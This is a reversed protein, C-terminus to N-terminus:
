HSLGATSPPTKLSSLLYLVRNVPSRPSDATPAHLAPCSDTARVFVPLSLQAARCFINGFVIIKSSTTEPDASLSPSAGGPPTSAPSLLPPPWLPACCPTIILVRRQLSTQFFHFAASALHVACHLRQKDKQQPSPSGVVAGAVASPAPLRSTPLPTCPTKNWWVWVVVLVWGNKGHRSRARGALGRGARNGLAAISPVRVTESNCFPPM